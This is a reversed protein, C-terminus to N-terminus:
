GFARFYKWKLWQLLGGLLSSCVKQETSSEEDGGRVGPPDGADGARCGRRCLLEPVASLNQESVLLHTLCTKPEQIDFLSGWTIWTVKARFKEGETSSDLLELLSQVSNMCLFCEGHIFFACAVWCSDKLITWKQSSLLSLIFGRHHTLPLSPLAPHLVAAM